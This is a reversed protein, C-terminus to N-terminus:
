AGPAFRLGSVRLEPWGAPSTQQTPAPRRRAERLERRRATVRNALEDRTAALEAASVLRAGAVGRPASTEAGSLPELVALQQELAEIEARLRRRQEAAEDTSVPTAVGPEDDVQAYLVAALDRPDLGHSRAEHAARAALAGLDGPPPSGETVFTGRGQESSILGQDALRAYVARVTNVNVEAAAALERVGPLRDGASLSGAAIAARLKWSLQTGLPVDSNRELALDLSSLAM